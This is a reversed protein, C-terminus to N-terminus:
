RREPPPGGPAGPGGQPRMAARMAMMPEREGRHCTMCNVVPKDEGFDMKALYDQNIARSMAMMQRTIDKNKKDDDSWHGPVHCHRCSVGLAHSMGNMQALLRQAPVGKIVKLNKFVSEAAMGKRDGLQELVVKTMSDREAIFSDIPMGAMAGPPPGGPPPGGPPRGPAGGPPPGQADARPPAQALALTLVLAAVALCALATRRM